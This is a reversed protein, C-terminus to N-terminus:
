CCESIKEIEDITYLNLFNRFTTLQIYLISYVFNLFFTIIYYMHFLKSFKQIQLYGQCVALAFFCPFEKYVLGFPDVM